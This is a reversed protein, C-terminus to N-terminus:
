LFLIGGVGEEEGLGWTFNQLAKVQSPLVEAFYM